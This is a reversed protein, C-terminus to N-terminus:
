QKSSNIRYFLLQLLFIMVMSLLTSVIVIGLTYFFDKLMAVDMFTFVLHYVFSLALGYLFFVRYGLNFLNPEFSKEAQDKDIFIPLLYHRALATAVLSFAHEGHTESVFDIITGAVFFVLLTVWPKINVPWLMVLLVYLMPTAFRNLNLGNLVVVQLLLLGLFILIYRIINGPTM